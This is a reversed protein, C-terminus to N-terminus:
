ISQLYEDFLVCKEKVFDRVEINWWEGGKENRWNVKVLWASRQGSGYEIKLCIWKGDINNTDRDRDKYGVGM